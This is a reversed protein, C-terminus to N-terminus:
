LKEPLGRALGYRAGRTTGERFVIGAKVLPGVLQNVRARNVKMIKGIQTSTMIGEEKLLTLLEDQKPTLHVTRGQAAWVLDNARM